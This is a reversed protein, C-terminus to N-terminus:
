DYFQNTLTLEGEIAKISYKINIPLIIEGKISIILDNIKLITNLYILKEEPILSLKYFRQLLISFLPYNSIEKYNTSSKKLLMKDYKMYLKKSVEFRKILVKIINKFKIIESNSIKNLHNLFNNLILDNKEYINNESFKNFIPIDNELMYDLRKTLESLCNNRSNNYKKFFSRGEYLSYQYKTPSQLLNEKTYQYSNDIIIEFKKIIKKIELEFNIKDRENNIIYDPSKPPLFKIDIGVVNKLKGKIAPKYLNKNDREILKELSVDIFIERYDKIKKRNYEQHEHFISLVCAIVNINSNNLFQCIRSIRSGNKKRDEISHGLDEGLINRYVDGDLLIWKENSMKLKDFLLKGFTTKGSASM